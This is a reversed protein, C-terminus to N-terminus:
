NDIKKPLCSLGLSLCGPHAILPPSQLHDLNRNKDGHRSLRFVERFYELCLHSAQDFDFYWRRAVAVAAVAAPGLLMPWFSMRRGSADQKKM